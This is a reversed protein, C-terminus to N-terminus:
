VFAPGYGGTSTGAVGGPGRARVGGGKGVSAVRPRSSALSNVRSATGIEHWYAVRFGAPTWASFGRVFMARCLLESVSLCERAATARSIVIHTLDLTTGFERPFVATEIDSRLDCFSLFLTYNQISLEAYHSISVDSM